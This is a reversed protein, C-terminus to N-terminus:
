CDVTGPKESACSPRPLLLFSAALLLVGVAAKAFHPLRWIALGLLALALLAVGVFAAIAQGDRLHHAVLALTYAGILTAAVLAGVCALVWSSLRGIRSITIQSM